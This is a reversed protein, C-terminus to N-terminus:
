DTIRIRRRRFTPVSNDDEDKHWRRSRILRMRLSATDAGDLATTAAKERLRKGDQCITSKRLLLAIGDTGALQAAQKARKCPIGCSALPAAPAVVPIGM